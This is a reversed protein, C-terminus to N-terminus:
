KGFGHMKKWTSFDDGVSATYIWQKGVIKREIEDRKELDRNIM